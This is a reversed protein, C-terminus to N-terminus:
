MFFLVNVGVAWVFSHNHKCNKTGGTPFHMDDCYNGYLIVALVFVFMLNLKRHADIVDYIVMNHAM